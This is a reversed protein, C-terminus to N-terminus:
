AELGEALIGAAVLVFTITGLAWWFKSESSREKEAM